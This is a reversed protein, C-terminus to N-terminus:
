YRIWNEAEAQLTKIEEIKEISEVGVIKNLFRKQIINKM